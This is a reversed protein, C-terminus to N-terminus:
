PDHLELYNDDIVRYLRYGTTQLGASKLRRRDSINRQPIMWAHLALTIMVFARSSRVTFIISADSEDVSDDIPAYAGSSVLERSDSCSGYVFMVGSVVSNQGTIGKAIRRSNILRDEIRSILMSLLRNIPSSEHRSINGNYRRCPCLSQLHSRNFKRLLSIPEEWGQWLSRRIMFSVFSLIWPSSAHFRVERSTFGIVWTSWFRM